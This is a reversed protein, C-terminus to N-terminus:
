KIGKKGLKRKIIEDAHKIGKGKYPEPKKLDRIIAATEGLLQKDAGELTIKTQKEIKASIGKPLEFRIPHSYGLTLHLCNGKLEARYGIGVLELNKEFGKSVGTVMNALLSRTLGHLGSSKKHKSKISVVLSGETQSVEIGAPFSQGLTGKPGTVQISSDAITAKVGDPIPIPLRGVRSM